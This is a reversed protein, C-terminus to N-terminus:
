NCEVGYVKLDILKDNAMQAANTAAAAKVAAEIASNDASEAWIYADYAYSRADESNSNAYRAYERAEETVVLAYSQVVLIALLLLNSRVWDSIKVLWSRSEISTHEDELLKSEDYKDM